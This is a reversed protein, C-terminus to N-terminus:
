RSSGRSSIRHSKLAPVTRPLTHSSRVSWSKVEIACDSASGDVTSPVWWSPHRERQSRHAWPRGEPASPRLSSPRLSSPATVRPTSAAHSPPGDPPRSGAAGGSTRTTKAKRAMTGSSLPPPQERSPKRGLRGSPSRKPPREASPRM